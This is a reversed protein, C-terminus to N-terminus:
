AAEPDYDNLRMIGEYDKEVEHRIVIEGIKLDQSFVAGHFIGPKDYDYDVTSDDTHNINHNSKIIEEHIHEELFLFNNKTDAGCFIYKTGSVLKQPESQAIKRDTKEAWGEFMIGIILLTITIIDPNIFAVAVFFIKAVILFTHYKITERKDERINM